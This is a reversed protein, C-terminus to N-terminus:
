FQGQGIEKYPVCSLVTEYLYAEWIRESRGWDVFSFDWSTVTSPPPCSRVILWGSSTTSVSTLNWAALHPSLIPLQALLPADDSESRGQRNRYKSDSDHATGGIHWTQRATKRGELKRDVNEM